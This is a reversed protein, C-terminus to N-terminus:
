SHVRLLTVIDSHRYEEAWDLATRGTDDRSDVTAGKSLLWQVANIKNEIAAIHLPTMNFVLFFPSHTDDIACYFHICHKRCNSNKWNIDAGNSLATKMGQINGVQAADWLLQDQIKAWLLIRARLRMSKVEPVKLM